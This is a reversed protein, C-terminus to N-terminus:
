YTTTYTTLKMICDGVKLVDHHAHHTDNHLGGSEIFFDRSLDMKICLHPFAIYIINWDIYFIIETLIVKM